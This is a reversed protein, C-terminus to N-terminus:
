GRLFITERRRIAKKLVSLRKFEELTIAIGNLIKDWIKRKANELSLIIEFNKNRKLQKALKYTM